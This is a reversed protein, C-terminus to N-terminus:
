SIYKLIWPLYESVRTYVGPYGAHGCGYGFSTVGALFWKGTVGKVILPGGSDGQCTDAGGNRWGACLMIDKIARYIRQRRLRSICESNSIIPVEAKRMTRPTDKSNEDTRGWGTIHGRMGAYDHGTGPLCIASIHPQYAVSQSLQVLAIDNENTDDNYKSEIVIQCCSSIMHHHKQRVPFVSRHGHHLSLYRLNPGVLCHAATVVWDNNILAGGCFHSSGRSYLNRVSVQWPYEGEKSRYGDVIGESLKYAEHTTNQEIDRRNRSVMPAIGCEYNDDANNYDLDATDWFWRKSLSQPVGSASSSCVQMAVMVATLVVIRHLSSM